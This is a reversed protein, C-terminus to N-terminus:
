VNEVEAVEQTKPEEVNQATELKIRLARLQESAVMPDAAHRCFEAMTKSIAAIEEKSLEIKM